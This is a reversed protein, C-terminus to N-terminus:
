NKVIEAIKAAEQKLNELSFNNKVIYDSMQSVVFQAQTETDHFMRSWNCASDRIMLRKYRTSISAEIGVVYYGKDKWFEAENVQRGDAIIPFMLDNITKDYKIKQSCIKNWVDQGLQERVIQGYEQYKQRKNPPNAIDVIKRIDEGLKYIKSSFIQDTLIEALTDKGSGM